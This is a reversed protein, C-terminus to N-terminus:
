FLPILVPAPRIDGENSGIATPAGFDDVRVGAANEYGRWALYRRKEAGRLISSGRVLLEFAQDCASCRFDYIPM